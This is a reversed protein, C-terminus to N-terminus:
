VHRGCSNWSCGLQRRRRRLKFAYLWMVFLMYVSNWAWGVVSRSELHNQHNHKSLITPLRPKSKIKHHLRMIGILMTMMILQSIRGTKNQDEPLIQKFKIFIKNEIYNKWVIDMEFYIYSDNCNFFPHNNQILLNTMYIQKRNSFKFISKGM